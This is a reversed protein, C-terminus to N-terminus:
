TRGGHTGKEEGGGMDVGGHTGEGTGRWRKGWRPDAGVWVGGGGGHRSGWGAHIGRGGREERGSGWSDGGGQGGGVRTPGRLRPSHSVTTDSCNPGRNLSLFCYYRSYNDLNGSGRGAQCRGSPPRYFGSRPLRHPGPLRADRDTSACAPSLPAQGPGRIQPCPPGRVGRRPRGIGAAHTPPLAARANRARARTSPLSTPRTSPVPRGMASPRPAPPAAPRGPVSQGLALLRRQSPSGAPSVGKHNESLRPRQRPNSERFCPHPLSPYCPPGSSQPHLTMVM